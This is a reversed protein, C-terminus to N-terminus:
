NNVFNLGITVTGHIFYPHGPLFIYESCHFKM